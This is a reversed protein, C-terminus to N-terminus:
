TGFVRLHDSLTTDNDPLISESGGNDNNSGSSSSLLPDATPDYVPPLDVLPTLLHRREKLSSMTTSKQMKKNHHRHQTPSTVPPEASQHQQKPPESQQRQPLHYLLPPQKTDHHNDDDDHCPTTSCPTTTSSPADHNERDPSVKGSRSHQLSLPMQSPPQTTASSLSPEIKAVHIHYDAYPSTHHPQPRPDEILGELYARWKLMTAETNWYTIAIVMHHSDDDDDSTGVDDGGLYGPQHRALDSSQPPRDEDDRMSSSSTGHRHRLGTFICAYYPTSADKPHFVVMISPHRLALNEGGICGTWLVGV